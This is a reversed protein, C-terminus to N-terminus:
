ELHQNSNCKRNNFNCESKCSAHKTLTNSENIRSKKIREIMNFVSQNLYEKNKSCM